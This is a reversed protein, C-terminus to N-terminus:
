LKYGHYYVKHMFQMNNKDAKIRNTQSNQQAATPTRLNWALYSLLGTCIHTKARLNPEVKGHQM